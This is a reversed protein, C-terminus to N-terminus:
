NLWEIDEGKFGTIDSEYIVLLDENFVTLYVRPKYCHKHLNEFYRKADIKSRTLYPTSVGIMKETQYYFMYIAPENGKYRM